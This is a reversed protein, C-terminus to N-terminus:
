IEGKISKRINRKFDDLSSERNRFYNDQERESLSYFYRWFSRLDKRCDESREESIKDLEEYTFIKEKIYRPLPIIKDGKQIFTRHGNRHYSCNSIDDSYSRGIGHSCLMFPRPRVVDSTLPNIVYKCVYNIRAPNVDSISIFGKDWCTDVYEYVDIFKPINFLILHYHPRGTTPGYESCCFYDFKFPYLRKRLKKIFLQVDRKSVGPVCPRFDIYESSLGVRCFSPHQDSGNNYFYPITDDQYTLTVFYASDCHAFHESLRFVWQSRKKSLCFECKGCGVLTKYPKGNKKVGSVPIPHECKISFLKEKM